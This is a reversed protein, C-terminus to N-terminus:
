NPSSHSMMPQNLLVPVQPTYYQRYPTLPSANNLIVSHSSQISGNLPRNYPRMVHQDNNESSEQYDKPLQKLLLLVQLLQVLTM